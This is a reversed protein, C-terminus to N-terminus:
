HSQHGNKVVGIWYQNRLYICNKSGVISWSYNYQHLIFYKRITTVLKIFNIMYKTIKIMFYTFM